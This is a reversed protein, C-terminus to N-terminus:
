WRCLARTCAQSLHGLSTVKEESIYAHAFCRLGAGKMPNFALNLSVCIDHLSNQEEYQFAKLTYYDFCSTVLGSIYLHGISCAWSSKEVPHLRM